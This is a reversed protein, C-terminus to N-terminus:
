TIKYNISPKRYTSIKRKMEQIRELNLTEM